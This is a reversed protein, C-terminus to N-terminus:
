EVRLRDAPLASAARFTQYSVTLLSVALAIIGSVLFIGLGLRTHYAFNQIWRKMIFFGAPWTIINALLVLVAFEKGLIRLVNWTSAGLVKRIAIEKSRRAAMFSALGFLGLCSIFIALGTFYKLIKELRKENLYQQQFKQDLFEPEVPYGPVVSAITSKIFDISDHIGSERIKIFWNSYPLNQYMLFVIPRIDNHLSTGHFDKVVGVIVGEDRWMSFMKGVPDKYGTLKLAAENIIYNRRDSAHELSFSRGYAMEMDFTEFYDYDVCAFNMSVYSDPGRGKWYVPNNNGIELPISSAATVHLINPNKRLEEKIIAYKQRLQQRTRIVLIQDKSFGLDKSQIYHIQKIIAATMIILLVSASFQFIILIKRLGSKSSGTRHISSLIRSPQFSSFYFAPYSGALFGTFLAFLVLGGLLLGDRFINFSFHKGTLSNFSPLFLYVLFVAMFIATLSLGISEGLFQIILDKREGGCVKRIGIENMRVSSRATALNTFNICAILLMIVAIASFVYVYVVPDTGSLAYLHIKKVPFLGARYQHQTRKDYKIITGSIKQEVEKPNAGSSLLVYSFVDMSWTQTRDKGVLSVAPMLLDFRMHSNDPINKIVGTVALDIQNEIKLTKGIPDESGFYKAAATETLVVSNQNELASEPHGKVLPFSFMELFEKDVLAVNEFFFKDEYAALLPVEGYWSGKEIEPFDKKLTPVLAWPSSLWTGRESNVTIMYLNEANKHFKDYSLEHRVWFFILICCAMGIALGLINILSYGWQKKMQRLTLKLYNRFMAFRGYFFHSLFPRISRFIQKGYWSKAKSSGSSSALQQYTERLDGIIFEREKKEILRYLIWEM